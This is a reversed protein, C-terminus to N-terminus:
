LGASRPRLSLEVFIQSTRSFPSRALDFAAFCAQLFPILRHFPAPAAASARVMGARRLGEFVSIAWFPAGQTYSASDVDLGASRAAREFSAATFLTWHRPCHYGGWSRNRFLRADLSDFNPTKVLIRGQPSLMGAAKRLVSVPDEVHEILNLMLILDFSRNASFTEIRCRTYEHGAARAIKEAARDLDVIQTFRVRQDAIRVRDLMQGTGGGVDLASLESGPLSALIRLLRRQDLLAKVRQVLSKNTETYAYYNSPYIEALQGVPLPHLFLVNCSDCHYYNFWDPTTYYEVDQARAWLDAELSQCVPCRPRQPAASPLTRSEAAPTVRGAM